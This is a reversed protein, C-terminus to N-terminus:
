GRSAVTLAEECLRGFGQATGHERLTLDTAPWAAARAEVAAVWDSDRATVQSSFRAEGGSGRALEVALPLLVQEEKEMHALQLEVYRLALDRFRAREGQDLPAGCLADAALSLALRLDRGLEHEHRLVVLPGFGASLGHAELWTFLLREEEEHHRRDGFDRFFRLFDRALRPDYEPNTATWEAYRAFAGYARQLLGHEESLITTLPRPTATPGMDEGCAEWRTTQM